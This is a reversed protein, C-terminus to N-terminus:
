SRSWEPFVFWPAANWAENCGLDSLDCIPENARISAEIREYCKAIDRAITPSDLWCVLYDTFNWGKRDRTFWSRKRIVDKAREGYIAIGVYKGDGFKASLYTANGDFRILGRRTKFWM